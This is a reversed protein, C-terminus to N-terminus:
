GIVTRTVSLPEGALLSALVKVTATASSFEAGTSAAIGAWAIPSSTGSLKVAMAVSESMGPSWIVKLRSAPAGGPAAM